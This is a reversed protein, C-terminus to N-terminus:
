SDTAISMGIGRPTTTKGTKIRADEAGNIYDLLQHENVIPIGLSHLLDIQDQRVKTDCPICVIVRKKDIVKYRVCQGICRDFQNPKTTTKAEIFIGMSPIEIDASSRSRNCLAKTNFGIGASSLVGELHSQFQGEDKFLFSSWKFEKYDDYQSSTKRGAKERLRLIKYAKSRAVFNWVSATIWGNQKITTEIPTGHKFAKICQAAMKRGEKKRQKSLIKSGAGTGKKAIGNHKEQAVYVGAAILAKQVARANRGQKRGIAKIGFGEKYFHVAQKDQVSLERIAPLEFGAALLKKREKEIADHRAWADLDRCRACCYKHNKEKAQFLTGCRKCPKGTPVEFLYVQNM